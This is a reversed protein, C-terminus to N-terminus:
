IGKDTEAYLRVQEEYDTYRLEDHLETTHPEKARCLWCREDYSSLLICPSIDDRGACHLTMNPDVRYWAGDFYRKGVSVFMAEATPSKMGPHTVNTM